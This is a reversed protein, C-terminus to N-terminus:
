AVAAATERGRRRQWFSTRFREEAAYYHTRELLYSTCESDRAHEYAALVERRDRAGDLLERVADAAARATRLARLVGSGSVPDVALAADGVALWPATTTCHTACRVRQSAACYVHVGGEARASGLRAPTATAQSLQAHWAALTSLRGRACLDTDTMLMTLM